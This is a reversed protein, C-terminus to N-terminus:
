EVRQGVGSGVQGEHGHPVTSIRKLRLRMM